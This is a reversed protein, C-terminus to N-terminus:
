QRQNPYEHVTAIVFPNWRLPNPISARLAHSFSCQLYVEARVARKEALLLHIRDTSRVLGLLSLLFSRAAVRGEAEPLM